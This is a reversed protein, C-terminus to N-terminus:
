DRRSRQQAWESWVSASTVGQWTAHTKSYVALLSNTDAILADAAAQIDAMLTGSPRGASNNAEVMGPIFTRGRLQRGAIFAGTFWRVLGQTAFPLPDGANAGTTGLATVSEVGIIQGTAEDIEVVEAGTTWNVTNSISPNLAFWFDRVAQNADAATGGSGSFYMQNIGGGAVGAGSFITSVRWLTM